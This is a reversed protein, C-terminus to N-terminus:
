VLMVSAARQQAMQQRAMSVIVFLSLIGVELIRPSQEQLRLSRWYNTHETKTAEWKPVSAFGPDLFFSIRASKGTGGVMM